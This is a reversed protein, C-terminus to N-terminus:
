IDQWLTNLKQYNIDQYDKIQINSLAEINEKTNTTTLGVVYMGAARGSKLGNISDELVVCEAPSVGFREAGKLYCDPSPKSEAFDESTLIADFLSKFEPRVRFVSEMKPMNSSTVVATKVGHQRLDRVFAEFGAIYSYDMQAEFENLRRTVIDREKELEGSWWKDYIQQLTSGKIEHELGPREPHYLRCQSGWFVTYQPETDFVVGDLDFLAAKLQKM